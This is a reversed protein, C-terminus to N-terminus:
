ITSAVTGVVGSSAMGFIRFYDATGAGIGPAAHITKSSSDYLVSNSNASEATLIKVEYRVGESYVSSYTKESWIENGETSATMSIERSNNSGAETVACVGLQELQEDILYIKNDISGTSIACEETTAVYKERRLLRRQLYLERIRNFDQNVEEITMGDECIVASALVNIPMISIVVLSLLVCILKKM